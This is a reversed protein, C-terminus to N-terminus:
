LEEMAETEMGTELNRSSDRGQSGETISQTISSFALYVRKEFQKQGHYKYKTIPMVDSVNEM